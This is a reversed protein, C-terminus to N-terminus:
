EGRVLKNVKDISDKSLVAVNDYNNLEEEFCKESVARAVLKDTTLTTKNLYYIDTTEAGFSNNATIKIISYDDNCIKASVVKLSQPNKFSSKNKEIIDYLKQESKNLRNNMLNVSIITIVLVIFVILFYYNSKLFTTITNKSEKNNTKKM